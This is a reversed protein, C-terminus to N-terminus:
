VHLLIKYPLIMPGNWGSVVSSWNRADSQDFTVYPLGVAIVVM